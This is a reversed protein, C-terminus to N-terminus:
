RHMIALATRDEMPVTAAFYDGSPSIKISTFKDRRLYHDLDVAAAQGALTMCVALAALTLTRM